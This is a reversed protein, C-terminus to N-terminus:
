PAQLPEYNPNESGCKDCFKLAFWERHKWNLDPDTESTTIHERKYWWSHGFIRCRLCPTPTSM